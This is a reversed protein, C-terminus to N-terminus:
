LKEVKEVSLGTISAIDEVVMGRTKLKIAIERKTELRGKVIGKKLGKDLGEKLKREAEQLAYSRRSQEDLIYKLHSEHMAQEYENNTCNFLVSSAMALGEERKILENITARKEKNTLYEFYLAWIEHKEMKKLPKNVVYKAKCLELTIITIKGDLPTKNEIDYYRFTHILHTDDFFKDHSLISIQYVDLLKSYNNDKGQIEQRGFLRSGYYELRPKEYALPYYFMEINILDGNETKCNIDFRLKRENTNEIAPENPKLTQVKINRGILASILHSLAGNSEPTERAFVAKFIDDYRIDLPTDNESFQIVTKGTDYFHNQM